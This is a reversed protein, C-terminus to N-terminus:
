INTRTRMNLEKHKKFIKTVQIPVLKKDISMLDNQDAKKDFLKTQYEQTPPPLIPSPVTTRPFPIEDDNSNDEYNLKRGKQSPKSEKLYSINKSPPSPLQLDFKDINKNISIPERYASVKWFWPEDYMIKIDNGALLRQRVANQENFWRKFHIFVRNYKEGSQSYKSVIDIRDVIGLELDEFIKRIQQENINTFVRPICLSPMNVPITRFDIENITPLSM